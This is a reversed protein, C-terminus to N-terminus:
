FPRAPLTGLVVGAILALAGCLVALHLWNEAKPLLGGIGHVQPL